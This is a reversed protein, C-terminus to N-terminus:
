EEDEFIEKVIMIVCSLVAVLIKGVYNEEKRKLQFFSSTM